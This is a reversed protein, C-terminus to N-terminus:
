DGPVDQSSSCEDCSRDAAQPRLWLAPLITIGPHEGTPQIYPLRTDWDRSNKEVAKALMVTLTWNFREVFGDTQPHNATTNVKHIGYVEQMLHSLFNAVHM